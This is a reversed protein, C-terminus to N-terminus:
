LNIDNSAFSLNSICCNFENNNHHEIIFKKSYASLVEEEGYWLMMVVQHLMKLTKFKSAGTYIYSKENNLYKKEDIYWNVKSLEEWIMPTYDTFGIINLNKNFFDIKDDAHSLELKLKM